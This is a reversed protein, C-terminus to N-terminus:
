ALEMERAAHRSLWVRRSFRYAERIADTGRVPGALRALVADPEYLAVISALDHRNFTGQFSRHLQEPSETMFFNDGQTGRRYEHRRM